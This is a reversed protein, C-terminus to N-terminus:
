RPLDDKPRGNPWFHTKACSECMPAKCDLCRIVQYHELPKTCFMCKSKTAEQFESIAVAVLNWDRQPLSGEPVPEGLVEYAKVLAKRVPPWDHLEINGSATRRYNM